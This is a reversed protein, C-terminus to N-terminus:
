HQLNFVSKHCGAPGGSVVRGFMNFLRHSVSKFRRLHLPKGRVAYHWCLLQPCANLLESLATSLRLVYMLVTSFLNVLRLGSLFFFLFFLLYRVTNSSALPTNLDVNNWFSSPLSMVCGGFCACGLKRM